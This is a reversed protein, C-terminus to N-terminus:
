KLSTKLALVKEKEVVELKEEEDIQNVEQEYTLLSGCIEVLSVKSLNKVEQIAIVKLKDWIKTPNLACHLTNIAKFNIQIKKTKANTWENRLKPELEGNERKTKTPVYPSDMVVDWMKYDCSRMYVSM